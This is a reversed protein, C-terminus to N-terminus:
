WCMSGLATPLSMRSSTESMAPRADADLQLAALEAEVQEVAVPLQDGPDGVPDLLQLAAAVRELGGVRRELQQQELLDLAGTRRVEVTSDHRTIVSSARRAVLRHRLRGDLQAGAAGPDDRGALAVTRDVREVVRQPLRDPLGVRLDRLELQDVVLDADEVLAVAGVRDGPHQDLGGVALREHTVTPTPWLTM